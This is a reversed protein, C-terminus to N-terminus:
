SQFIRIVVPTEAVVPQKAIADLAARLDGENTDHTVLILPVNAGPDREKQLVIDLSVSKDALERTIGALVGPEDKVSLRIYYAGMRAGTPAPDVDELERVPRGFSPGNMGRIIDAIDAVVASATPGEGAGRGDMMIRGVPEADLMVANFVGDVNALPEHDPVMALHVRQELGEPNRRAVGLLKLRYGLERAFSIDDSTVDRIGEIGVHDFRPITGFACSALIAIKHAADIGDVDFTPDAEAYGLAQAKNLMVQFDDGTKDMASLIYNCTGNLIGAVRIIQNGVLGEQLAKIIPIGGAVAAEFRLGVNSGEAMRALQAGHIAVLAKNATVVHVGSQLALTVADLAPGDSGGILEIFIDPRSSSIMECPDTFFPVDSLDVGRDKSSRACVGVLSINAGLKAGLEATKAQLIKVVGVGVTGLGAIAIKTTISM